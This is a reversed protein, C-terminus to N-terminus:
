ADSKKSREPEFSGSKSHRDRRRGEAKAAIMHEDLNEGREGISRIFELLLSMALPSAGSKLSKIRHRKRASIRVEESSAVRVPHGFAKAAVGFPQDFGFAVIIGIVDEAGGNRQWDTPLLWRIKVRAGKFAPLHAGLV